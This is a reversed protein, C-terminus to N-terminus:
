QLFRNAAEKIEDVKPLTYSRHTNAAWDALARAYAVPDEERDMSAPNVAEPTFPTYEGATLM